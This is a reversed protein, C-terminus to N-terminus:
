DRLLARKALIGISLDSCNGNPFWWCKCYLVFIVKITFRQQYDLYCCYGNRFRSSNACCRRWHSMSSNSIRSMHHCIHWTSQTSYTMWLYILCLRVSCVVKHCVQQLLVTHQYFMKLRSEIDANKKESLPFTARYQKRVHWVVWSQWYFSTSPPSPPRSSFNFISLEIM